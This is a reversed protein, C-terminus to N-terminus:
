WLGVDTVRKAIKNVTVILVLNIVSNFLSIATGYSYDSSTEMAVKYSYTSIIESASLNLQNQMLLVQEYGIAMMSGVKMILLIVFTPIVVPFDIHILQKFRSAGDIAAAEYLDTDVSALNAIYIVANWGLNKWVLSWVYISSFAEPKSWIDVAEVGMIECLRGYLGIRPDLMQSVIGVMVVTSIFHPMYSIMQVTKMYKKSYVANLCLAFILTVVPEVLIQYGSLKITNMFVNLFKPTHFLKEFHKLGVWESGWIGGSVTYDKFAIQLGAMPYYKFLLVLAFPIVLLLYLDWNKVIRQKLKKDGLVVAAGQNKKRNM